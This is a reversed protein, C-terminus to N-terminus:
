HFSWKSFHDKKSSHEFLQICKDIYELYNQKLFLFYINIQKKSLFYKVIIVFKTYVVMM